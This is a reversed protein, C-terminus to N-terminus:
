DALWMALAVAIIVLLPLLWWFVGFLLKWDEAPRRSRVARVLRTTSEIEESDFQPAIGARIKDSIESLERGYRRRDSGDTYRWISLIHSKALVVDSCAPDLGCQACKRASTKKPAGCSLCIANPM